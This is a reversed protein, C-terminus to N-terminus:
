KTASRASIRLIARLDAELADGDRHMQLWTVRTPRWGAALLERDRLRDTEFASPTAHARRSDLEVAVRERHWVCDVERVQGSLELEVNTEPLPLGRDACFEIFRDEMESRTPRGALIRSGVLCALARRGRKRPHRELVGRLAATDVLRQFEAEKVLRRLRQDEVVGSLDLLTRAVSTVPIGRVIALDERRLQARHLRIGHQPRRQRPSTVSVPRVFREELGHLWTATGHSLASDPWAAIVGALAFGDPRLALHGVAYVGPHIVVLKGAGIRLDIARRGIGLELLQRRAVVGHQRGALRAIVADPGGVGRFHIQGGLLHTFRRVNAV